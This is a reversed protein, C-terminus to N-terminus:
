PTNPDYSAYLNVIDTDGVADPVIRVGALELEDGSRVEAATINHTTITTISM